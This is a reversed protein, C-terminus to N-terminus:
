SSRTRKASSGSVSFAAPWSYGKTRRRQRETASTPRASGDAGVPPSAPRLRLRRRPRHDAPAPGRPPAAIISPSSATRGATPCTPRCRRCRCSRRADSARSRRFRDGRAGGRPHRRRDAVPRGRRRARGNVKELEDLEAQRQLLDVDQDRWTGSRCSSSRRASCARDIALVGLGAFLAVKPRRSIRKDVPIPRTFDGLRSRGEDAAAQAPPRKISTTQSRSVPALTAPRGATGVDDRARAASPLAPSGSPTAARRSRTLRDTRRSRRPRPVRRERRARGRHAPTPQVQRGPREPVARRDQDPRLEHRRRPRRDDRGRDRGLPPEDGVHLRPPDGARRHRADRHALRDPQGQHPDLQRGVQRHGDAPADRQHRVPRRRRAPGEFGVAETLTAWGEWDNEDMRTRSRCSRIRTSSANGTRRDDREAVLVKGEGISTTPATASCSARRRTWPSPSRTASRSAPRRSRRSSSAPDGGRELRPRARLWGRRRGGHRPGPRPPDGQARPLDRHGLAPGRLLETRRRAHDHVGAHRHLQRRARWRQDREDDARPARPRQPRRRVPLAPMDLEIAAAKAVALSTGLIANAGLKAKNDTGDLDLMLQDIGRQDLADLGELADAIDDNVFGVAKRVGKGGYRDGGDRLEVAEHEGTSAGSPVAARGLSGSDLM